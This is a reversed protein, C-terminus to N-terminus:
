MCICHITNRERVSLLEQRVINIIALCISSSAMIIRPITRTCCRIGEQSADCLVKIPLQPNYYKSIPGTTVLQKQREIAKIQPQDFTWLIDKELLKRLPATEDSLNPIFKGLYTIMGLFRQLEKVNTPNPLDLIASIKNFDPEIGRASITHGLFTIESLTFQCKERQLNLGSARVAELCAMTRQILEKKTSGRIIIDDQSNITGKIGEIIEAIQVQCIESASHIGYPMRLFRKRRKRGFPTNLTLLYPSEEDLPIQWFANSPDLKTFYKAGSMQAIIEETTPLKHHHRKIAKNLNRPDLCVRLSGNPKDAVVLSSVWDTPETVPAIIGLNEMRKLEKKLRDRLPPPVNRCADIVPPVTPDTIIHYPKPLTSLEGFVITM